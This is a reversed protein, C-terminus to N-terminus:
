IIFLQLFIKASNTILEVNVIKTIVIGFTRQKFDLVLKTIKRHKTYFFMKLENSLENSWLIWYMLDM